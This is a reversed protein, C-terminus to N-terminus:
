NKKAIFNAAQEATLVTYSASPNSYLFPNGGEKDNLFARILFKTGVPHQTRMKKSCSVYLDPSFRQNPLPRARINSSTGGGHYHYTEVVIEHYIKDTM